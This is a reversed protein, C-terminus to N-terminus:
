LRLYSHIYRVQFYIIGDKIWGTVIDSGTMGGNPSLGFGIYGHTQVEVKFEIETDADFGYLRWCVHYNGASDLTTCHLWDESHVASFIGAVVLLVYVYKPM